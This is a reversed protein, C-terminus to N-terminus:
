KSPLQKNLYIRLRPLKAESSSSADVLNFGPIFDLIWYHGHGGWSLTHRLIDQPQFGWNCTELIAAQKDAPKIERYPFVTPSHAM